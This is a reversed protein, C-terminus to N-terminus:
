AAPRRELRRVRERAKAREYKARRKCATTCYRSRDRAEQSHCYHCLM